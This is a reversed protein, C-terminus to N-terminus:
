ARTMRYTALLREDRWMARRIFDTAQQADSLWSPEDFVRSARALAAIM